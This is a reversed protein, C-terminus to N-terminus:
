PYINNRFVEYKEESVGGIRGNLGFPRAFTNGEIKIQYNSSTTQALDFAFRDTAHFRNGMIFYNGGGIQNDGHRDLIHQSFQGGYFDCDSVYIHNVHKSGAICHRNNEFRSGSVHLVQNWASGKGGQWIPHGFGYKPKKTACDSFKSYSVTVLTCNFQHIAMCNFGGVAVDNFVGYSAEDLRIASQLGDTKYDTPNPVMDGYCSFSYAELSKTFTLAAQHKEIGVFDRTKITGITGSISVAKTFVHFQTIVTQTWFNFTDGDKYEKLAKILDSESEIQYTM